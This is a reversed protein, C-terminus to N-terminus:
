HNSKNILGLQIPYLSDEEFNIWEDNFGYKDYYGLLIEQKGSNNYAQGILCQRQKKNSFVAMGDYLEDFRYAKKLYIYKLEEENSAGFHECLNRITMKICHSEYRYDHVDDLIKSYKEKLKFYEEILEELTDLALDLKCKNKKDLEKDYAICCDCDIEDCGRSTFINILGFAEEYEEKNTM